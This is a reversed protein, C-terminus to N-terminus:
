CVAAPYRSGEEKGNDGTEEGSNESDDDGSEMVTVRSNVNIIDQRVEFCGEWEGLDIEVWGEAYSEDKGVPILHPVWESEGVFSKGWTLTEVEGVIRMRGAEEHKYCGGLKFAM